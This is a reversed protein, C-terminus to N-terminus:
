GYTLRRDAFGSRCEAALDQHEDHSQGAWARVSLSLAALAL